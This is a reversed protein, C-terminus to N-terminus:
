WYNHGTIATQHLIWNIWLLDTLLRSSEWWKIIMNLIWVTNPLINTVKVKAKAKFSALALFVLGLGLGLGFDELGLGSTELGLGLGSFKAELGLGLGLGLLGADLCWPCMMATFDSLFSLTFILGECCVIKNRSIQMHFPNLRENLWLAVQKYLTPMSWFRKRGFIATLKIKM